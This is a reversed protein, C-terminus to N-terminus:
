YLIQFSIINLKQIQTRQCIPVVFYCKYEYDDLVSSLSCSPCETFILFSEYGQSAVLLHSDRRRIVFKYSSTRHFVVALSIGLVEATYNLLYLITLLWLCNNCIQDTIMLLIEKYAKNAKITSCRNQLGFTTPELGARPELRFNLLLMRAYPILQM